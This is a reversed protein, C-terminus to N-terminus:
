ESEGVGLTLNLVQTYDAEEASLDDVIQGERLVIMRDTFLLLDRIDTSIVLVAKGTAALERVIRHIEEKANVDVGQTPEELILVRARAQLAKALLVKQQNGGSLKSVERMISPAAIRLVSVYKQATQAEERLQLLGFRTISPLDVLSINQAISLQAVVGDRAPNEPVLFVGQAIAEQPSRATFPTGELLVEGSVPQMLGFLVQAIDHTGSGLIGTLGVVQGPPVSLSVNRLVPGATLGRIELLAEEAVLAEMPVESNAEAMGAPIAAPEAVRQPDHGAMLNVVASQTLDSTSQTTVLRGDRLITIRDALRFIEELHHSIYLISIGHSCLDRILEFLREIQKPGLAATPEDLIILKAQRYLAKAIAIEQQLAPTLEAVRKRLDVKVRLRNLLDGAIRYTASRDILFRTRRPQAGLLINEAVSLMPVLQQRQYVVSIGYASAYSPSYEEFVQGNFIIRGSDPPQAGSIIKVLTSKGAGNEGVLAHVRGPNVELSVSRLARVGPFQKSVNEVKLM